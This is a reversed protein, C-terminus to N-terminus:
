LGKFYLEGIGEFYLAEANVKDAALLHLPSDVSFGKFGNSRRVEDVRLPDSITIAHGVASRERNPAVVTVDGLESMAGWLAKIGPAYIGDDNTVLISTKNM